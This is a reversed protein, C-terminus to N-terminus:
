PSLWESYWNGDYDRYKLHTKPNFKAINPHEAIHVTNVRASEPIHEGPSIGASEIEYIRQLMLTAEASTFVGERRDYKRCINLVKQRVSWDRCKLGCFMLTALIGEKVSFLPDPLDVFSSLLLEIKDAVGQFRPLLIDWDTERGSFTTSSIIIEHQDIQIQLLLFTRLKEPSANERHLALCDAVQTKWRHIKNAPSDWSYGKSLNTTQPDFSIPDSLMLSWGQISATMTAKSLEDGYASIDILNDQFLEQVYPHDGGKYDELRTVSVWHIHLQVFTHLLVPAVVSTKANKKRWELLLRSGAQLHCRVADFDGQFIAFTVLVICAVLVRETASPDSQDDSLMAKRLCSIAKASQRIPFIDNRSSTPDAFKRHLAGIGIAAHRVGPCSEIVQHVLVQWFPDFNYGACQSATYSRFSYLYDREIRSLGIQSGDPVYILGASQAQQQGVHVINLAGGNAKATRADRVERTRRDPPAAYGQCARGSRTCM